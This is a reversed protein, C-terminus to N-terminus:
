KRLKVGERRQALKERLSAGYVEKTGQKVALEQIEEGGNIPSRDYKAFVIAGSPCSRACAPCNNKCNRPNVVRVRDEVMEYVGFPCFEYCKGCEACLDKDITPYWADEGLKKKFSAIKNVWKSDASTPVSKIDLEVLISEFNGSRLDLSKCDEEDVFAMLSKVAKKYCAVITTKAIEHVKEDKDQCLECLDSIVEVDYGAESAATALLAVKEKDIFTRSACACITIKSDKNM